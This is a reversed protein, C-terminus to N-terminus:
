HNMLSSISRQQVRCIKPSQIGEEALEGLSWYYELEQTMSMVLKGIDLVKASADSGQPM